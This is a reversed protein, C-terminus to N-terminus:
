SEAHLVERAARAARTPKRPAREGAGLQATRVPPLCGPALLAELARVSRTLGGRALGGRLVVLRCHTPTIDVVIRDQRESLGECRESDVTDKAHDVQVPPRVPVHTVTRITLSVPPAQPDVCAVLRRSIQTAPALRRVNCGADTFRVFCKGVISKPQTFAVCMRLPSLSANACGGAHVPSRRRQRLQESLPRGAGRM